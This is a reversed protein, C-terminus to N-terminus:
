FQFVIFMLIAPSRFRSKSFVNNAEHTVIRQSHTQEQKTTGFSSKAPTLFESSHLLM